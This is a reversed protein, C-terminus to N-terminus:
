EGGTSRLARIAASIQDAANVMGAGFLPMGPTSAQKLGDAVKACEEIAAERAHALQAEAADARSFEEGCRGAWMASRENAAALRQSLSTIADAAERKLANNAVLFRSLAEIRGALDDFRVARSVEEDVSWRLQLREVLDATEEPQVQLSEKCTATEGEPQPLSALAGAVGVSVGIRPDGLVLAVDASSIGAGTAAAARIRAAAAEVGAPNLDNTMPPTM